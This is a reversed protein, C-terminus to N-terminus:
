EVPGLTKPPPYNAPSPGAALVFVPCFLAALLAAPRLMVPGDRAAPALNTGRSLKPRGVSPREGRVGPTQERPANWGSRGNGVEWKAKARAGAWTKCRRPQTGDGRGTKARLECWSQAADRGAAPPDPRGRQRCRGRRRGSVSTRATGPCPRPTGSATSP